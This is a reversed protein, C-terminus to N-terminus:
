YKSGLTLQNGIMECADLLPKGVLHAYRQTTQTQRHGLLAGIIPLSLGNSAAVSAFTHRLDHIRIDLGAKERIRVWPKQLGVLHAGVKKGCIVYPNGDVRPIANLVQVAAPALYVTKKGTKSDSLNFCQNKLDVESWRLTLVENLRCGTLILLRIAHFVSPLEKGEKEEEDLVFMLRTIEEQSLFRERKNEAYKKIHRCPNSHDPRFEWLEALNLTKSLLSLVRNATIPIHKLSHHLKLIDERTLSAVKFSGLVPLIRKDWLRQDEKSSSDKKHPAYEAMYKISLEKITPSIRMAKKEASPDKGQAVESLWQQATARALECTIAGHAGILPKRQRGDATRYFLMYSRKGAPTIKCCFGKLETDWLLIDKEQPLTSEVIRKTLKAMDM